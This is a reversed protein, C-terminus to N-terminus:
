SRLRPERWLGFASALRNQLRDIVAQRCFRLEHTSADEEFAIDRELRSPGDAWSRWPDIENAELGAANFTSVRLSVPGAIRLIEFATAAIDLAYKAWFREVDLLRLKGEHITDSVAFTFSVAGSHFLRTDFQ